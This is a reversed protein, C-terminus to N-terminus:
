GGCVLDGSQSTLVLGCTTTVPSGLGLHLKFLVDVQVLLSAGDDAQALIAKAPLRRLVDGLTFLRHGM